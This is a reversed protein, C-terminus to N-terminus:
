LLNPMRRIPNRYCHKKAAEVVETSVDESSKASSFARDPISRSSASRCARRSTPPTSCSLRDATPFPLPKFVVADVVSFISQRARFWKKSPM